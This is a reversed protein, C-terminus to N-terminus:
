APRSKQNRVGFSDLLHACIKQALQSAIRAAQISGSSVLQDFGTKEIIHVHCDIAAIIRVSSKQSVLLWSEGFNQGTTLRDVVREFHNELRIIEVQGSLLTFTCAPSAGVEVIVDGSRFPVIRGLQWLRSREEKDLQDFFKSSSFEPSLDTTTNDSLTGSFESPIANKPQDLIEAMGIRDNVMQCLTLFSDAIDPNTKAGACIIRSLTAQRPEYIEAAVAIKGRKILEIVFLGTWKSADLINMLVPDCIGDSMLNIILHLEDTSLATANSPKSDLKSYESNYWEHWAQVSEIRFGALGFYFAAQRWHGM